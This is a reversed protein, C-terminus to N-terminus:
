QVRKMLRKRNAAGNFYAVRNAAYVHACKVAKDVDWRDKSNHAQGNGFRHMPGATRYLSVLQTSCDKM